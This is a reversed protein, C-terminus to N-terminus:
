ILKKSPKAVFEKLYFPEFYAVDEFQGSAHAKEALPSMWKAQPVIGPLFHANPHTIVERCKDAGNGFFYIPHQDLQEAFSTSDIVKAEVASVTNLARTYLATYVEMRRADIMPCLLSDAPLDDHALLVPVCMVELTPLAILPLGLAYCVGKAMSVGIRLGTYSGPGRSVAVADFPIAHSDAFSLAEDVMGGLCQAASRGEMETQQFILAGDQSVAVSCVDTATEIHLICSMIIWNIM